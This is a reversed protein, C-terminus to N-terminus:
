LGNHVKFSFSINNLSRTQAHAKVANSTVDYGVYAASARDDVAPKELIFFLNEQAFDMFTQWENECFFTTVNPISLKGKAQVRKRLLSIPESLGNVTTKNKFNRELYNRSYGSQEGGNPVTLYDGAAIYKVIPNVPSANYIYVKLNTFARPADLVIVVPQNNSVWVRKILTAGDYVRVESTFDKNGEINLGAVAVYSAVVPENFSVYLANQHKSKYFLSFDENILNEGLDTATDQIGTTITPVINALVNSTTLIM